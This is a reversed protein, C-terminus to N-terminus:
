DELGRALEPDELMGLIESEVSEYEWYKETAEDWAARLAQFEPDIDSVKIGYAIAQDVGGEWDIKALLDELDYYKSM